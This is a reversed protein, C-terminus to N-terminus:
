SAGRPGTFLRNGPGTGFQALHARLLTVLEPHLPVARTETAARHKLERRERFMGNDAFKRGARPDSNTLRMAGWGREPLSILNECRADIAEGPRLAGAM